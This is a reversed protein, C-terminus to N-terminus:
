GATLCENLRANISAGLWLWCICISYPLFVLCIFRSPLFPPALGDVWRNELTIGSVNCSSEMREMWGGEMHWVRVRLSLRLNDRMYFYFLFVWSDQCCCYFIIPVADDPWIGVSWHRTIITIINLWGGKKYLERCLRLFFICLTAGGM